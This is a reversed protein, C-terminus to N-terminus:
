KNQGSLPYREDLALNLELVNVRPEGLFGFQRGETHERVLKLLSNQDIGRAAAVRPVQFEAGAPTIHPDLGSGSTTVLDVPVPKGPNEAQLTAVDGKVRDMLKQNTPGLNSGSSNDAAYGNPGAASPRPHFYATGTFPQALIHSGVVVGNKTILQGNAQNPWLRALGFVLAPYILGLIVTTAITYLIATILNKKM